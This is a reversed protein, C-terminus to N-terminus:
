YLRESPHRPRKFRKYEWQYQSPDSEVLREIAANMATLAAEPGHLAELEPLREFCLKFGGADPLRRAYGLVLLPRLRMAIRHGLTMTLAARGFFPVYIGGDLRPVQDPLLGVVGGSRLTAYLARVGARTIPVLRSGTRTRGARVIPDLSSVRLPDYLATLGFRAGLFLNLIEWNGFHPALVLVGRRARQAEEIAGLGDIAVILSEWRDDSRGWMMGMEAAYCGTHRLSNRTLDDLREAPLHPFCAALNARTIRRSAGGWRFAVDGVFRGLRETRRFPLVSLAALLTRLALAALRDRIPGSGIPPRM